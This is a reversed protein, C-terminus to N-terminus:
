PTPASNKRLWKPAYDGDAKLHPRADLETWIGIYIAVYSESHQLAPERLSHAVSVQPRDHHEIHRGVSYLLFEFPRPATMSRTVAPSRASSLQAHEPLSVINDMM